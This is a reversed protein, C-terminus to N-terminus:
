ANSDTLLDAVTKDTYYEPEGEAIWVKVISNITAGGMSISTPVPLYSVGLTPFTMGFGGTGDWENGNMGYISAQVQQAM